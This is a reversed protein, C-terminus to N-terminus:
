PDRECVCDQVFMGCRDCAVCECRTPRYGCGACTARERCEDCLYHGDTDCTGAPTGRAFADCLSEPDRVGDMGLITRGNAYAHLENWRRLLDSV